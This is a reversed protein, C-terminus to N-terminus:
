RACDIQRRLFLELEERRPAGEWDGTQLCAMAGLAHARELASSPSLEDLFGSLLGAAFADGAGIPDVIRDLVFPARFIESEGDFLHAGAAGNKLAVSGAGAQMLARAISAPETEGTLLEGEERSPLIRDVLPLVALLTARFEEVPWLKGRYNPDLWIKAGHARADRIIEFWLERCSQSLAPTIGSIFVFKAGRWVDPAFSDASLRSFASGARYYLVEPEAWGRASKFLVGTPAETSIQVQSVDVGEGRAGKVIARGFVDDGVAGLWRVSHGLRAAALALNVEAGAFTATAAAGAGLPANPPGNFVMMAEGLTVIDCSFNTM